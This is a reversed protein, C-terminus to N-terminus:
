LHSTSSFLYVGPKQPAREMGAQAMMVAGRLIIPGTWIESVDLTAAHINVLKRCVLHDTDTFAFKGGKGDYATENKNVIRSMNNAM